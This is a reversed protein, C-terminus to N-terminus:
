NIKSEMLPLILEYIKESVIKNGTDGLHVSDLYIPENIGDFVNRFDATASCTNSLVQLKEAYLELGPLRRENEKWEFQKKEFESLTRESSGLIPQVTVVVDFGQEDGLECIETWRTTWIDSKKEIEMEDFQYVAPGAFSMPLYDLNTYIVKALTSSSFIIEGIEYFSDREKSVEDFNKVDLIGDYYNEYKKGVDNWGDYIVLMDPEFDLIQQKILGVETGSFLGSIGANIVEIKKPLSDNDFKDQLFGPITTSDSTSGTGFATSGGVVFIRYTDDSKIQSFEAGRFGHSNINITQFYQDPLMQYFPWDGFKLNRFDDCVNRKNDLELDKFIDSKVLVCGSPYWVDYVRAIGEISAIILFIFLIGVTFQKSYSVQVSM